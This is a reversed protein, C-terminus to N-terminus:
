ESKDLQSIVSVMEIAALAADSGKNGAKSGAREIAQEVSETTLVGFTVPISHKLSVTSLGKALENCIHDYHTTAGRIVAGVTVIADYKGSEAIKQCALPIEFAGPVNVVTISDKRCGHKVLTSIAGELLRESIFSNFRGVVIAFRCNQANLVGEINNQISM